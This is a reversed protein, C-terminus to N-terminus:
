DLVADVKRDIFAIASPLEQPNTRATKRLIDGWEKLMSSNVKRVANPRCWEMGIKRGLNDLAVKQSAQQEPPTKAMIEASIAQWGISLFNGEQFTRYWSREEPTLNDPIEYHYVVRGPAAASRVDTAQAPRGQLLLCCCVIAFFLAARKV